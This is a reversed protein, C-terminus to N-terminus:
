VRVARPSPSTVMSLGIINTKDWKVHQMLLALQTAYFGANYTTQPADSYGRGYLDPPASGNILPSPSEPVANGYLLLRYGKSTLSPVVDKWIISPV